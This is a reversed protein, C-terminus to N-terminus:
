NQKIVFGYKEFEEELELIGAATSFQLAIVGAKKCGTINDDRDDVFIMHEKQVGFNGTVESFINEFFIPSESKRGERDCSFFLLQPHMYRLLYGFKGRMEAQHMVNANSILGQLYGSERIRRSLNLFLASHEVDERFAKNFAVIFDDFHPKTRFRKCLIDYIAVPAWEDSEISQWFLKPFRGPQISIKSNLVHSVDRWSVRFLSALSLKLEDVKFPVIVNGFDWFIIKLIIETIKQKM